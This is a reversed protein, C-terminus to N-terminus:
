KRKKRNEVKPKGKTSEEVRNEKTQKYGRKKRKVRKKIKKKTKKKKKIKKKKKLYKKKKQSLNYQVNDGFGLQEFPLIDFRGYILGVKLKFLFRMQANFLILKNIMIDLWYIRM